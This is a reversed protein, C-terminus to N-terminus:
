DKDALLAGLAREIRRNIEARDALGGYNAEFMESDGFLFKSVEKFYSMPDGKFIPAGDSDAEVGQRKFYPHVACWGGFCAAAGCGKPGKDAMKDNQWYELNPYIAKNPLSDMLAKAVLCNKIQRDVRVAPREYVKRM